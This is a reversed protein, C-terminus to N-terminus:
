SCDGDCVLDDTRMRVSRGRRDSVLSALYCLIHCCIANDAACQELPNAAPPKYEISRRCRLRWPERHESVPDHASDPRRDIPLELGMLEAAPGAVLMVASGGAVIIKRRASYKNGDGFSGNNTSRANFWGPM